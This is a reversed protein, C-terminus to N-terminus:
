WSIYTLVLLQEIKLIKIKCSLAIDRGDILSPKLTM